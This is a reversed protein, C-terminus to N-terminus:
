NQLQNKNKLALELQNLKTNWAKSIKKFITVNIFSGITTLELFLSVKVNTRNEEIKHLKIFYSFNKTFRLDKTSEGYMFDNSSSDTITEFKLNGINLVCNHETGIRNIKNEDFELKKIEKDWLHRYKLESIFAYIDQINFDITREIELTPISKETTYITNNKFELQVKKQISELNKYFYSIDLLDYMESSKVWTKDIENKYLEYTDNTFLVYENVPVKNKLLRHIKIVERGYPKIFTKVKIFALEGYHVIFKLELNTTTRCSGCNCIRKTEYNKTHKHFQELMTTTQNLLAAYSPTKSTFMFLADGEIEVLELALSNNDILLELLESIIHISHELETNNVFKTFGSIDPMFYLAKQM